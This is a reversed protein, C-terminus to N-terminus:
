GKQRKLERRRQAAEAAKLSPFSEPSPRFDRLTTDWVKLHWRGGSEVILDQEHRM